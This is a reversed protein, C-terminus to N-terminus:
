GMALDIYTCLADLVAIEQAVPELRFRNEKEPSEHIRCLCNRHHPIRLSTKPIKRVFSHALIGAYWKEPPYYNVLSLHYRDTRLRIRNKWPEFSVSNRSSARTSSSSSLPSSYNNLLWHSMNEDTRLQSTKNWTAIYCSVHLPSEKQHNQVLPGISMTYVHASCTRALVCFIM